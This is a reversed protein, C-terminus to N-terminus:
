IEAAKGYSNFMFNLRLRNMNYRHRTKDNRWFLDVAQAQDRTAKKKSLALNFGLTTQSKGTQDLRPDEIDLRAVRPEYNWYDNEEAYSAHDYLKQTSRDRVYVKFYLDHDAILDGTIHEGTEPVVFVEQQDLSHLEKYRPELPLYFKYRMNSGANNVVVMPFLLPEYTTREIPSGAFTYGEAQLTKLITKFSPKHYPENDGSITYAFNQTLCSSALVYPSHSWTETWRRLYEAWQRRYEESDYSHGADLWVGVACVDLELLPSLPYFLAQQGPNLTVVNDSEPICDLELGYAVIGSKDPFNSGRPNFAVAEPLPSNGGKAFYFMPASAGPYDELSARKPDFGGDDNIALIRYTKGKHLSISETDSIIIESHDENHEAKYVTASGKVKLSSRYTDYTDEIAVNGRQQKTTQHHYLSTKVEWILKAYGVLSYKQTSEECVYIFTHTRLERIPQTLRPLRGEEDGKLLDLRGQILPYISSTRQGWGIGSETETYVTTKTSGDFAVFRGEQVSSEESPDFGAEIDFYVSHSPIRTGVSRDNDELNYISGQKCAVLCLSLLVFFARVKSM